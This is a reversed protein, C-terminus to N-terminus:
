NQRLNIRKNQCFVPKFICFCLYQTTFAYSKCALVDDKAHWFRHKQVGFVM